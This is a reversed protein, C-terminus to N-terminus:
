DLPELTLEQMGHKWITNGLERLLDLDEDFVKGFINCSDLGKGEGYYIGLCKATKNRVPKLPGIVIEGPVTFVSSNEQIIDLEPANDIWFEQGSFKAHFFIRSFPLINSFASVTKPSEEEYYRFRIIKNDNTKIVFGTM